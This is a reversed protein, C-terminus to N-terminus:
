ELEVNGTANSQRGGIDLLTRLQVRNCPQSSPWIWPRGAHEGSDTTKAVFHSCLPATDCDLGQWDDEILVECCISAHNASRWADPTPALFGRCLATLRLDTGRLDSASASQSWIDRRTLYRQNVRHSTFARRPRCACLECVKCCANRDLWKEVVQEM